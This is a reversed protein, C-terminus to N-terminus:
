CALSLVLTFWFPAPDGSLVTGAPYSTAQYLFLRIVENQAMKRAELDLNEQYM